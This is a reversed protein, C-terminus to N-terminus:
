PLEKLHYRRYFDYWLCVNFVAGMSALALLANGCIQLGFSGSLGSLKLLFYLILGGTDAVAAGRLLEGARGNGFREATQSCILSLILFYLGAAPLLGYVAPGLAQPNDRGIFFILTGSALLIPIGWLLWRAKESLERLKYAGLWCLMWGPISVLWPILPAEYELRYRWAFFIWGYPLLWLITGIISCQLGSLSMGRRQEQMLPGIPSNGARQRNEQDSIYMWFEVGHSHNEFGCRGKHLICTSAVIALGLGNGSVERERAAEGRYFSEWIREGDQKSIPAGQNEVGIRVGGKEERVTLKITSDRDSYYVANLMLNTISERLLKEDALLRVDERIEAEVQM